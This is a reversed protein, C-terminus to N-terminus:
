RLTADYRRVSAAIHELCAAAQCSLTITYTYERRPLPQRSARVFTITIGVNGDPDLYAWGSKGLWVPRTQTNVKYVDGAVGGISFLRHAHDFVHPSTYLGLLYSPGSGYQAAFTEFGPYMPGAYVSRPIKPLWTPVYVPIRSHAFQSVVPLFVRPIAEKGLPGPSATAKGTSAFCSWLLLTALGVHLSRRLNM